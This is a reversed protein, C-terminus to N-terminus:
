SLKLNCNVKYILMNKHQIKSPVFLYVKIFKTRQEEGKPGMFNDDGMKRPLKGQNM